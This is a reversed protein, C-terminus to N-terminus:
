YINTNWKPNYIKILMNEILPKYEKPIEWWALKVDRLRISKLLCDHNQERNFQGWANYKIRWRSRLNIAKGVYLVGQVPHILFYVCCINPPLSEFSERNKINIFPLSNLDIKLLSDYIIKHLSVIRELILKGSVRSRINIIEM